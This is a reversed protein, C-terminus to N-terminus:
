LNLTLYNYFNQHLLVMCFENLESSNKTLIIDDTCSRILKIAGNYNVITKKTSEDQYTFSHLICCLGEQNNKRTCRENQNHLKKMYDADTMNM